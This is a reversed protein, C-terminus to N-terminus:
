HVRSGSGGHEARQRKADADWYWTLKPIFDTAVVACGTLQSAILIILAAVVAKARAARMARVMQKEVYTMGKPKADYRACIASYCAYAQSLPFGWLIYDKSM